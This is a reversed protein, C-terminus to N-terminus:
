NISIPVTFSLQINYIKSIIYAIKADLLINVLNASFGEKYKLWSHLADKKSLQYSVSQRNFKDTVELISSYKKEIKKREKDSCMGDASFEDVIFSDIPEKIFSLQEYM